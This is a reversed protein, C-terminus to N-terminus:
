SHVHLHFTFTHSQVVLFDLIKAKCMPASWPARPDGHNRMLAGANIYKELFLTRHQEVPAGGKRGRAVFGINRKVIALIPRTTSAPGNVNGSRQDHAGETSISASASGALVGRVM